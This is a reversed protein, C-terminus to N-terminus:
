GWQSSSTHSCRSLFRRNFSFVGAQRGAVLACRSCRSAWHRLARSCGRREVRPDAAADILSEKIPFFMGTPNRLEGVASSPVLIRFGHADLAFRTEFPAPAPLRGRAAAFQPAVAPDPAAPQAAVALKLALKASGPICIDACALWSAEADLVATRGVALEKPASIPVLLDVTGAYGNNGIGNQGYHEPVPWLIRGASFGPPLKWDIATPLGSDGPNQWYIHWGPKVELHLDVWLTTEAAILATEAVLGPKVLDESAPPGGARAGGSSLLAVLGALASITKLIAGIRMWSRWAPRVYLLFLSSGFARGAATPFRSVAEAFGTTESLECPLRAIFWVRVSAISIPPVPILAANSSSAPLIIPSRCRTGVGGLGTEGSSRTRAM